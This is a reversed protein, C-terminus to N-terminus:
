LSFNTFYIRLAPTRSNTVLPTIVVVSDIGNITCRVDHLNFNYMAGCEASHFYAIPEYDLTLTDHLQQAMPTGAGVWRSIAYRTTGVSARLPLYVEKLASSDALLSDGPAGIGMITLGTITQQSNGLYFAALPLSSGNDYCSDDNCATLYLAAMVLVIPLLFRM